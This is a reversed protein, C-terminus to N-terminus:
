YKSKNFGKKFVTTCIGPGDGMSYQQADFIIGTRENEANKIQM